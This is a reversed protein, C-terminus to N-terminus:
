FGVFRIFKVIRSPQINNIPQEKGNLHAKINNGSEKGWYPLSGSNSWGGENQGSYNELNFGIVEFGSGNKNKLDIEIDPLNNKEIRVTKSGVKTGIAGFDSDDSKYGVPVVGQMETHEEWGEPIESAPKDWIAVLGIPVTKRVREELKELRKLLSNEETFSQAEIQQNNLPRKFDAWLRGNISNGFTAYRTYEVPKEVGDKFIRKQSTEVIIVKESIPAGKFPLVEGDIYVVGDTISRGVEECGSLISLNGAINGLANLLQYSQQMFDLTYTGLPFGGTNDFNIKNM